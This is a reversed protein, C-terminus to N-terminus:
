LINRLTTKEELLIELLNDKKLLYDKRLYNHINLRCIQKEYFVSLYYKINTNATSRPSSVDINETYNGKNIM